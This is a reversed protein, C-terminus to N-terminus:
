LCRRKWEFTRRYVWEISASDATWTEHTECVFYLMSFCYNCLSEKRLHRWIKNCLIM